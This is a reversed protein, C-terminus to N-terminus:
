VIGFIKTGQVGLEAAELYVERCVMQLSSIRAMSLKQETSKPLTRDMKWFAAGQQLIRPFYSPGTSYVYTNPRSTLTYALVSSDELEQHWSQTQGASKKTERIRLHSSLGGLSVVFSSRGYVRRPCFRSGVGTCSETFLRLRQGASAASSLGMRPSGACILPSNTTRCSVWAMANLPQIGASGSM